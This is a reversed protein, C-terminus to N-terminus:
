DLRGYFVKTEYDFAVEGNTQGADFIRRLEALMAAHRPHAADPAYSSSLLRGKAGEFDFRQSHEFVALEVRGGYFQGIIEETLQRHDVRRYDTAYELLLSEYAEAFPSSTALRENWILVVWGPPKLIRAFEARAKERDFWHFAQGATIFDVSAGPLTTEEARGSISHFQPYRQLLREGAERMKRNPEVAFVPNGIRLFLETLIGTGSGVDAIVSNEQLQCNTRLCDIVTEPYHPRYRAYDEVRNSFRETADM